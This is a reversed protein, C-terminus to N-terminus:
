NSSTDLSRRSKPKNAEMFIKMMLDKAMECDEDVQLKASPMLLLVVDILPYDKKTLMFIHHRRTSTVQHVKVQLAEVKFEVMPIIQLMYQVDEESVDAPDITPTDQQTSPSGLVEVEARLKKFSEQLLTAKAARKKVHEEDRDSKLFTQVKNYEREFIPRVQDYTMGKFHQIKYGAMNINWDINKKSKIMNNNYSKLKELDKKEQKERAAAQEIEEDQLRKAMQEDLIRAKEAKMKILTQDMTMTLEKDDFATPEADNVEKVVTVDEEVRGQTDANMEVATDLDVLIVDKKLRKLGSHKSRRKKELKKVRQKLKTIELAQAVKDQELYALKQTLTACTEMLTNLLTMSSESPHTPQTPQEQPLSSPQAPQAQPPLPIPEQQPPPSTTAPTPSPPTRTVSVEDDEDEEVEAADLHVADQTLGVMMLKYSVATIIHRDEDCRPTNVGLLPSDNSINHQAEILVLLVLKPGYHLLQNQIWLVQACYSAAAVYEAETSSTAVIIQLGLFFTLEGMSSMQFKDKMLREFAKCLEKNTSGFIIDDVYVKDPYDPDEFGPPQCVYVEKKITGYLFASKVDIQYVMFGMPSAYALFLWIAEIRAVPAFVEEYDIGEEHTHGQAVLRAKNRTRKGDKGYEKDSSAGVDEKDDSYVIDDLAPMDSDDPYQSLDVFSSKGSIEFNPSVVNDSPGTLTNRKAERKAKEDHKKPKDSSSPSVHVVNKNEKVDFALDVTTNQPDKSGTSWLPLLVYQQTSETEKGVTCANLNEQISASPNPQNGAVVPQYNMSQTLTDIDFLWKPGSGAVNPQNELFNIHLTKQVIRTRSNFVKFAKSTVFYGVLFGEDAKGDFKGLSNLTNLITVLCGFPRMFGISPKRGLLLEYPTKNHPKTVLVEDLTAKAFLCTLDGSPVVNKLDVNYMNNERLVRLLVHNEDPLKFDSSLVVCETDKVTIKGGKPNGGFAVYVRNIEEFDSLYSINRTMHKSCGSDIVGKDKLGPESVVQPGKSKLLDEDWLVRGVKLNQNMIMRKLTM